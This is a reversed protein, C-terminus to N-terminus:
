KQIRLGFNLTIVYDNMNNQKQQSHYAEWRLEEPSTDELGPYNGVDSIPCFCSLPWQKGKEWAEIVSCVSNRFM